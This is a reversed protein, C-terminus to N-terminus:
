NKVKVLAVRRSKARGEESRNTAIPCQYSVGCSTIRSAASPVSKSLAALVFAARNQSLEINGEFKSVSDTPGVVLLRLAADSKLLKAVEDLIADSEPKLAASATDFHLGYLNVSGQQLIGSAMDEAKVLVMKEEMAQMEILDLAIM